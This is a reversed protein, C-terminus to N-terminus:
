SLQRNIITLLECMINYAYLYKIKPLFKAKIRKNVFEGDHTEINASASFMGLMYYVYM